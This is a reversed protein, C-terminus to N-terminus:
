TCFHIYYTFSDRTQEVFSCFITLRACVNLCFWFTKGYTNLVEIKAGIHVITTKPTFIWIKWWGKTITWAVWLFYHNEGTHQTLPVENESAAITMFFPQLRPYPFSTLSFCPPFNQKSEWRIGIRCLIYIKKLCFFIQISLCPFAHTSIPNSDAFFSTYM